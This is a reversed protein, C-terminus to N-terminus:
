DKVKKRTDSGSEINYLDVIDKLDRAYRRMKKKKKKTQLLVVQGM